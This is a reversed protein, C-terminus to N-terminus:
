GLLTTIDTGLVFAGRVKGQEDLDPVYSAQVHREIGQRDEFSYEYTVREGRLARELNPQIVAYRQAGWAERVTRGILTAAPLGFWEEYAFNCIRFREQTDVYAVLAPLNDTLLRLRAESQAERRARELRANVLLMVGCLLGLGAMWIVANSPQAFFDPFRPSRVNALYYATTIAAGSLAARMGSLAAAIATLLGPLGHPAFVRIGSFLLLEVLLVGGLALSVGILEARYRGM